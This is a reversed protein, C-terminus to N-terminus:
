LNKLYLFCKERWFTWYSTIFDTVWGRLDYPYQAVVPTWNNVKLCTSSSPCLYLINCLAWFERLWISLIGNNSTVLRWIVNRCNLWFKPLGFRLRSATSACLARLSNRVVCVHLADTYWLFLIWFAYDQVECSLQYWSYMGDLNKRTM